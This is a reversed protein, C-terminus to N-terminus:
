EKLLGTQFLATLLQGFAVGGDNNPVQHHWLPAFGAKELAPFINNILLKNQWVGASIAVTNLGTEM